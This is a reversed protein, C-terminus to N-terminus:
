AGASVSFAAVDGSETRDAASSADASASSADREGSERNSAPSFLAM